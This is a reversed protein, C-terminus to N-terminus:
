VCRYLDRANGLDYAAAKLAERFLARDYAAKTRFVAINIENEFVRDFLTAPPGERLGAGEAVMEDMWALEKTLRCRCRNEFKFTLCLHSSPISSAPYLGAGEAVMEEM